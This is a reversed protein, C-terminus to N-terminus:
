LHMSPSSSIKIVEEGWWAGYFLVRSTIPVPKDPYLSHFYKFPDPSSTLNSTPEWTTREPDESFVKWEALYWLKGRKLNSDLFQALKWEEKEQVLSPPPPLQHRNPIRSKKSPDLLSMHFVPHVSNWQLPLKLHCAHSGIKKIVEFPGLWRESHKKTSRM